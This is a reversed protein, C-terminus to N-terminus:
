PRPSASADLHEEGLGDVAEIRFGARSNWGLIQLFLVPRLSVILAMERRRKIPLAAATEATGSIPDEAEACVSQGVLAILIM